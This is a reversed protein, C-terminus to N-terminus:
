RAPAASRTLSRRLWAGGYGFVLAAAPVALLAELLFSWYPVPGGGTLKIVLGPLAIAFPGWAAILAVQWTRPSIAGVIACGVAYSVVLFIIRSTQTESPGLDSFFGSLGAFGTIFAIVVGGLTALFRRRPAM